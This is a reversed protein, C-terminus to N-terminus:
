GVEALEEVSESFVEVSESFVEFLGSVPLSLNKERVLGM